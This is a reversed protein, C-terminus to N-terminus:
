PHLTGPSVWGPRRGGRGLPSKKSGQLSARQNSQSRGRNAGRREKHGPQSMRSPLRGSAPSGSCCSAAWLPSMPSTSFVRESHAWIDPFYINWRCNDRRHHQTVVNIWSCVNSLRCHFLPVTPMLVPPPSFLQEIRDRLGDFLATSLYREAFSPLITVITKGQMDERTAYRMACALAAGSSIGAPIGEVAALRQATEFAEKDSVVMVDDIIETNLVEPIFGTGIGQIAHPFPDRVRCSPM